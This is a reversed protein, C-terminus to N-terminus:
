AAPWLRRMAALRRFPHQLASRLLLETSSVAEAIRTYHAQRKSSNGSRLLQSETERVIARSSKSVTARSGSTVPRYTKRAVKLPPTAPDLNATVLADLKKGAQGLIKRADRYDPKSGNLRSATRFTQALCDPRYVWTLESCVRAGERIRKEMAATASNTFALIYAGDPPPPAPGALALGTACLLAPLPVSLCAGKTAISRLTKPTPM